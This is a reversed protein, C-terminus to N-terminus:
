REEKAPEHIIVLIYGGNQTITVPQKTTVPAEESAISKVFRTEGSQATLDWAGSDITEGTDDRM